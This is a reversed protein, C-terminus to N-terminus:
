SPSRSPAPLTGTAPTDLLPLSARRLSLLLLCYMAPTALLPLTVHSPAFPSRATRRNGRYNAISLFLRAIALFLSRSIYRHGSYRAVSSSARRLSLPLPCYTAPTAPLSLSTYRLLLSHVQLWHNAISSLPLSPTFSPAPLEGPGSYRAVSTLSARCLSLPLPCYVTAPTALLPLSTRRLSFSHM